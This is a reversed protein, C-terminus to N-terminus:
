LWHFAELVSFREGHRIRSVASPAEDILKGWRVKNTKRRLMMESSALAPRSASHPAAFRRGFLSRYQNDNSGVGIEGVPHHPMGVPFGDSRFGGADEALIAPHESPSKIHSANKLLWGRGFTSM